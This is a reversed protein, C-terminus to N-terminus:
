GPLHELGGGRVGKVGAAAIKEIKAPMWMERSSTGEVSLQLRRKGEIGKACGTKEALVRSPGEGSM